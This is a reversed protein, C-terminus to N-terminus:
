GGACRKCYSGAPVRHECMGQRKSRREVTAIEERLKEVVDAREEVVPSEAAEQRPYAVALGAGEIFAEVAVRVFGALGLRMGRAAVLWRERDQVSLRLEFRSDM